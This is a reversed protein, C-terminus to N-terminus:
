QKAIPTFPFTFWFTSGSGEESKVGIDGGMRQVITQCISLGLGTGQTFNNLKIFRDFVKDVQDQSIGCGTDTVYFQLKNENLRRYGFRISGKTTFKVANNLLNTMVQLFHNKEISVNGDPLQNEFIVEVGESAKRRTEQKLEYLITNLDVDAYHYEMTGAELKSLDLIDNILQLLLTSNNEIINIYKQRDENDETSILVNSFGVIANLPTRIEHSMNALFASKLRNSEEAKEKARFLEQEIKKRETIVVSSGILAIPKGEKDTKEIAAQAEIWEYLNTSEGKALIRYEEKAKNTKGDILAQYARKVKERDETHIRKIFDQEPISFQHDNGTTDTSYSDLPKIVDYLILKKELDWKWLTINAIDLSMSLKHNVTLLLQQTKILETTDVFFLDMCDATSSSTMIVSFYRDTQKHYYPFSVKNTKNDLIMKYFNLQETLMEPNTESGKKGIVAGSPNLLSEFGPNVRTVIYDVPEGQKNFLLRDQRYAIPMNDVLNNYSAMLALERAKRKLEYNRILLAIIVVVFLAIFTYRNKEWFSLPKTIVPDEQINSIFHNNRINTTGYSNNLLINHTSNSNSKPSSALVNFPCVLLLLTAM